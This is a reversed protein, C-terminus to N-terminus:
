NIVRKYVKYKKKFWFHLYIKIQIKFKHCSKWDWVKIVKGYFQKYFYNCLFTMDSMIRTINTIKSSSSSSKGKFMLFLQKSADATYTNLRIAFTTYFWILILIFHWPEEKLFVPLCLINYGSMANYVFATVTMWFSPRHDNRWKTSSLLTESALKDQCPQPDSALTQRRVM